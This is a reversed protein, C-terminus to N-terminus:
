NWTDEISEEKERTLFISFEMASVYILRRIRKLAGRESIPKIPFRSNSFPLCPSQEHSLFVFLSIIAAM